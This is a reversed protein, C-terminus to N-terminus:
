GTWQDDWTVQKVMAEPIFTPKLSKEEIFRRIEYNSMVGGYNICPSPKSPRKFPCDIRNCSFDELTYGWGYYLLGFNMKYPNVGAFAMPLLGKKIDRIDRQPRVKPSSLTAVNIDWPGYLDYDMFGFWDVYLEMVM